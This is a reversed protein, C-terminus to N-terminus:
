ANSYPLPVHRGSGASSRSVALQSCSACSVCAPLLLLGIVVGASISGDGSLVSGSGIVVGEALKFRPDIISTTMM